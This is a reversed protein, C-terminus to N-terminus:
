LKKNILKESQIVKHLAPKRRARQMLGIHNLNHCDSGLLDVMDNEILKDAIAKVEPGYHGTLSNINVQIAVGRDKLSEIKDWQNHWFGYREVHALMPKYGKMQLKWVIDNFMPPESMFPLEFLVYNDGFTLLDGAEIKPEFDADLNYEAAADIEISLGRKEKARRVDDLGNLIIDTTNRYYDSMVHPTTIVKKYGMAEFEALLNLSDEMQAAGDDIGPILHSHVDVKLVSLDAPDLDKEKKKGFLKGFLGM